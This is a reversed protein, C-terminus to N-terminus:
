ENIIETYSRHSTRTTTPQQQQKQNSYASRGNGYCVFHLNIQIWQLVQMSHQVRTVAQRSSHFTVNTNSQCTQSTGLSGFKSLMGNLYIAISKEIKYKTSGGKVELAGLAVVSRGGNTQNREDLRHTHTHIYQAKRGECWYVVLARACLCVCM